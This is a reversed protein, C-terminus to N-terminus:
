QQDGNREIEQQRRPEAIIVALCPHAPAYEHRHHARDDDDSQHDAQDDIQGAAAVFGGVVGLDLARPHRDAATDRAADHRDLNM